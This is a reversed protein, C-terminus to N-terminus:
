PYKELVKQKRTKGDADKVELACELRRIIIMPIIIDKYKDLIITAYIMEFKLISADIKVITETKKAINRTFQQCLCCLASQGYTCKM